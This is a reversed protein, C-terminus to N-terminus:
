FNRVVSLCLLSSFSVAAHLGEFVLSRVGYSVNSRFRLYILFYSVGGEFCSARIWGRSYSYM